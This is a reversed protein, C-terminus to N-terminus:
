PFVKPLCEQCLYGDAYIGALNDSYVRFGHDLEGVVAHCLHCNLTPVAFLPLDEIPREGSGIALPLQRPRFGNRETETAYLPKQEGDLSYQATLHESM